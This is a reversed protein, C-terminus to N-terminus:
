LGWKLYAYPEGGGFKWSPIIRKVLPRGFVSEGLRDAKNSIRAHTSVRAVGRKIAEERFGQLLIYGNRRGQYQPHIEITDLYYHSDDIEELKLVEDASVLDPIAERFPVALLYGAVEGNGIRLFLNIAKSNLLVEKYYVEADQYQWDPSFCLRELSLIDKLFKENGNGVLVEMRQSM